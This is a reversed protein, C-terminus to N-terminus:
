RVMGPFSKVPIARGIEIWWDGAAEQVRGGEFVETTNFRAVRRPRETTNVAECMVLYCPAGARVLDVHQGRERYGPNGSNDRYAADHTIQVFVSGDFVRKRDDWVRLFVAGDAPRVAGWLWRTNKLPAGLM